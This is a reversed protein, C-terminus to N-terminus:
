KGGRAAKVGARWAARGIELASSDESNWRACEYGVEEAMADTPTALQALVADAGQTATIEHRSVASLVRELRDALPLGNEVSNRM